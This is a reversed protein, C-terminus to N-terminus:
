RFARFTGETVTASTGNNNTGTFTFTGEFYEETIETIVLTGASSDVIESGVWVSASYADLNSGSSNAVIAHTGETIEIPTWLSLSHHVTGSQFDGRVLRQLSTMTEPNTEVDDVGNLTYNLYTETSNNDDDNDSSCGATVMTIVAFVTYLLKKM